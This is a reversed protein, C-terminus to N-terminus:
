NIDNQQEKHQKRQKKDRYNAKRQEKKRLRRTTMDFYRHLRGHQPNM